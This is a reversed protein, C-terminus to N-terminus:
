PNVSQSHKPGVLLLVLSSCLCTVSSRQVTFKVLTEVFIKLKKSIARHPWFMAILIATVLVDCFISASAQVIVTMRLLKDAQAPLMSANQRYLYIAQIIGAGLQTLAALFPPVTLCIFTNRQSAIGSLRWIRAIFFIQAIFETSYAMLYMLPLSIVMKPDNDDFSPILVGYSYHTSGVVQLTSFLVLLIVTGRVWWADRLLQERAYAIIGYLFVNLVEAGLQTGYMATFGVNSLESSLAAM